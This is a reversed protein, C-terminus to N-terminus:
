DRLSVVSNLINKELVDTVTALLKHELYPKTIYDSAGLEAAILRHKSASRSTLIVVPINSLVSDQQRYKLFEFGNMRPMEIDCLVLQIDTRHRLQEIAEYGDKAQLVRYGARQLTLALTQRVTISDDVLLIMNHRRERVDSEPSAPLGTRSHAPLLRQPQSPPLSPHTSSPLAHSAQTYGRAEAAYSNGLSATSGATQQDLVYQMLAAGDLVLTLRGDALISGGYVYNPPVIMAGLPRIVLEQEGILQDVELGLLKDQCRVLIVPMVQEEPVFSQPAQSVLPEPIQSFYNLVKSLQYVPILREDADKGWRIVKGDEWSRIQHAQPILIQEIADSLLAYSQNGANTLLLKSITLSLPIQLIFTTGRGPQSYVAVSGQLTQLQTRVVDLGIGRGSLDNVQSATSFGPEFLLDTLQAEKLNGAQAADILQSEVGRQRIAEFNLGQGDDRVEIMLYKGRHYARIEIQGKSPKGQQERVAPPEIGHDFANRVLHLLPDYLKEAVVKDVLVETGSLFLGVSKKHRIDLQQLVRHFRGFIDALPLMRAQMLADRTSTLLRRQKELTQHSQTTFLEIAESAEALQVADELVSQVLLQVESYRDLELSDFGNQISSHSNSLVKGLLGKGTGMGWQGLRRQEADIFQHDSWDQLQDLRQQHQKLRALLSRVATQLQENQLSQRNQNTLLEGISYNLHELHEVNVRVSSSVSVQDKQPIPTPPSDSGVHRSLPKKVTVEPEEPSSTNTLHITTWSPIEELSEEEEAGSSDQESTGGWISELLSNDSEENASESLSLQSDTASSVHNLETQTAWEQAAGELADEPTPSVSTETLFHHIQGLDQSTIRESTHDIQSLETFSNTLGALQQLVLSPQGGQSRDGALVATQAKQFDSHATQAITLAQDPHTDLAAIAVQGIAGFGPLGLSEALGQFVEVQARLTTAALVPDASAVATALENLRQTVGVEFISQTVDFGLEISSPIKAEQGFCDGLKEQLQAFVAATRDLIEADNVQGGTLEATLPLRLCEYAEFVLAEVESDISLDPNFLAKFIDELSHAVSKITELGVSAAAGKLTHTTRMLNHIKNISYDERLNLLEQELVGLLEPAEQLFYRYSQERITLDNNM